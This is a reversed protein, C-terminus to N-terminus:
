YIGYRSPWPSLDYPWPWLVHSWPESFLLPTSKWTGQALHCPPFLQLRQYNYSWIGARGNVVQTAQARLTKMPLDPIEENVCCTNIILRFNELCEELCPHYLVSFTGEGSSNINWPNPYACVLLCAFYAPVNWISLLESFSISCFPQSLVEPLCSRPPPLMQASVELLQLFIM